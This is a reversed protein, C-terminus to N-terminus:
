LRTYSCFDSSRTNYSHTFRFPEFLEVTEHLVLDKQVKYMMVATDYVILQEIDLWGLDQLLKAHDTNEFRVKAVARAARNQLQQLKNLQTQNCRGWVINCYRFHPEVLTKYLTDLTEKPLFTRVRKIVGINRLIKSSIYSVHKDWKLGEDSITGLYKTSNARRIVRGKIRIGVLDDFNRLQSKNGFLLFETKMFNLSLKNIELWECLKRFDPILQQNIDNVDDIKQGLNTDDAYMKIKANPIFAPLDNMYLIFLLPGLISGQPVGCTIERYGSTKGNVNCCQIRESLYSTLFELEQGRIGYCQLKTLLVEHNITDFAKKIDLFFVANIGGQDINLLWENTCDSQALVTSHLSRFGWKRRSLFNNTTLFSYIQEYVIREFVRAITPLVTIPRHFIKEELNSFQRFKELKSIM